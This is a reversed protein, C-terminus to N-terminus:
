KGLLSRLMWVAKEHKVLLEELMNVTGFDDTDKELLKIADRYEAVQYEYQEFLKTVMQKPTPVKGTADEKLTAAKIMASMSGLAVGQVARVREALLDMSEFLQNYQKDFLLHYDHFEPGVINWHYNLTQVLLVSSNALLKNLVGASLKQEKQNMVYGKM